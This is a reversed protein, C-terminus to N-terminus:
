RSGPRPHQPLETTRRATVLITALSSHVTGGQREVIQRLDDELAQRQRPDLRLYLSTTGFVALIRDATEESSSVTPVVQLNGFLAAAEPRALGHFGDGMLWDWVTSVNDRRREVGALITELDRQPPFQPIEPAHRRLAARFEEDFAVSQDDRIEMYVFLAFLGGPGLLSAVKAWGVAPDVWHFASASFVADFTEGSLDLDEFKGVHFRVGGIPGLRRKAAAIMRAGPEVADVLFGRGVLLETLKGTGCGVELVRSGIGLGGQELATEVLALPYGRRVEDYTEAVDDFALGFQRWSGTSAM